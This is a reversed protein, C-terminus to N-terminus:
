QVQVIKSKLQIRDEGEDVLHKGMRRIIGDSTMVFMADGVQITLKKGAVINLDEGVDIYYRKGVWTHKTKGVEESSTEGVTESKNTGVAQSLNQGVQVERNLGVAIAMNLGITETHSIGVSVIKNLAIIESHNAGVSISKNNGIKEIQDHDVEKERDHKVKIRNNREAHLYVEEAGDQDEFSLENFGIKGKPAKHTDSRLVMKTKNQPLEYPPKNTAHYTRGTIIPQDPDGELFDVIVEHGIRPIAIHGYMAGSWGNSVRVWCSSTDDGKGYRDWPFLIKVRGHEDCYIEEGPPGVVKAIQPGDVVPKLQPPVRYPLISSQATFSCSYWASGEGAEEQLAQPQGGSHEVSLLRWRRNLEQTTHDSLTVSHGAVLLPTNAMGHALSAEVRLGEIKNRTFSEGPVDEKFRGPYDYLTYDQKAGNLMPPKHAHQMNAAPAKFTYDRQVFRTATLKERFSFSSCYVGKVSGSAMGNYSLTEQGKSDPLAEPRDVVVITHRGEPDHRQFFFIGEEAFIRQIFALLTERYCVCYERVLHQDSLKWEVNQIQNEDLITQAIQPVSMNQFVRCDSRIDLRYLVPLLTLQYGTRHHGSDLREAEVVIGSFHRLAGLYKHHVTLTASTDLLANLDIASNRSALTLHVCSLGSIREDAGFHTVDLEGKPEGRCWFTFAIDQKQLHLPLALIADQDM